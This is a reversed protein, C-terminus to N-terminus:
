EWRIALGVYRSFIATSSMPDAPRISLGFANHNNSIPIPFYTREVGNLTATFVSGPADGGPYSLTDVCQWPALGPTLVVWPFVPGVAGAALATSGALAFSNITYPVTVPVTSCTTAGTTYNIAYVRPVNHMSASTTDTLISAVGGMTLTGASLTVSIATGDPSREIIFLGLPTKTNSGNFSTFPVLAVWGSGASAVGTLLETSGGAAGAQNGLVQRALLVGTIEGSGNSDKGITIWITPNSLAPNSYGSTGFELKICIPRSAQASDNFRFLAYGGPTSSTTPRTAAAVNIQGTDVTQVMGVTTLSTLLVSVWATFTADSTNDPACSFTTTPM